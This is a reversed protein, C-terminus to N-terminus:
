RAITRFSVLVHRARGTGYLIAPRHPLPRAGRSGSVRVPLSADSRAPRSTSSSGSRRAWPASGWANRTEAPRRCTVAAKGAVGIDHFRIEGDRVIRELRLDVIRFAPVAGIM